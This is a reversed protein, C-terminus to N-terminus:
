RGSGSHRREALNNVNQALLETAKTNAQLAVAQSTMANANKDLVAALVRKDERLQDVEAQKAEQKRFFDRRYSALTIILVLTLGGQTFGWKVLDIETAGMPRAEPPGSSPPTQFALVTTTLMEPSRSAGSAVIACLMMLVLAIRM